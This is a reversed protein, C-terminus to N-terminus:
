WPGFRPQALMGSWYLRCVKWRDSRAAGPCAGSIASTTSTELWAGHGSIGSTMSQFVTPSPATKWVIVLPSGRSATQALPVSATRV